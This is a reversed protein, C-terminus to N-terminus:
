EETLADSVEYVTVSDEKSQYAVLHRGDAAFEVLSYENPLVEEGHWNVVGYGAGSKHVRIYKGLTYDLGGCTDYGEMRTVTGDAACITYVGDSGKVVASFGYVTIKGGEECPIESFSGGKLSYFGSSGDKTVPAYGFYVYPSDKIVAPPNGSVYTIEDYEAPVAISGDVNAIGYKDGVKVKVYGNRAPTNVSDYEAEFIIENEATKLGYKGNLYFTQYENPAENPFEYYSRPTGLLQFSADYEYTKEETRDYIHLIEGSARADAYHDRTFTEVKKAEKLNYLDVTDILGYKSDSFMLYYDHEEETGNENIKVAVAWTDSLVSVDGYEFPIIVNGEGDLLGYTWGGTSLCATFYGSEGELSAYIAETLVTGDLKALAKGDFTNGLALYDTLRIVDADGRGSFQATETLVTGAPVTPVADLTVAQVTADELETVVAEEVPPMTDEITVNVDDLHFDSPGEVPPMSNEITVNVDDLHFDTPGEVSPMSSEITVNVDDLHFDTPGEVPPMSDEISITVDELEPLIAEPVDGLSNTITVTADELEPLIAEPVDGLSNTITVTADELEPLIAEPVDGLSNTITVTADELEPLIVEPVDGLSNTINITVDELETVIAEIPRFFSIPTPGTLADAALLTVPAEEIHLSAYQAEYGGETKFFVTMSYGADKEEATITRTVVCETGDAFGDAAYNDGKEGTLNDILYLETVTEGTRNYFTYTGTLDDQGEATAMVCILILLM